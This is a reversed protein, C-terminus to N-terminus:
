GAITIFRQLEEESARVRYAYVCYMCACRWSARGEPLSIVYNAGAGHFGDIRM